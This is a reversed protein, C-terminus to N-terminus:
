LDVVSASGTRGRLSPGSRSTVQCLHCRASLFFRSAFTSARALSQSSRHAQSCSVRIFVGGFVTGHCTSSSEPHARLKAIDVSTSSVRADMVDDECASVPIPNATNSFGCENAWGKSGSAAGLQTASLHRPDVFPSRRVSTARPRDSCTSLVHSRVPNFTHNVDVGMLMVAASLPRGLWTLLHIQIIMYEYMIIYGTYTDLATNDSRHLAAHWHPRDRDLAHTIPYIPARFQPTSHLRTSDLPTSVTTPTSVTLRSPSIGGLYPYFVATESGREM